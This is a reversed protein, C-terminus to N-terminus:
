VGRSRRRIQLLDIDALMERLLFSLTSSTQCPAKNTDIAAYGYCRTKLRLEERINNLDEATMENFRPHNWIMNLAIIPTIEGELPLTQSLQFLKMLESGPLDMAKHPYPVDPHNEIHSHPPCSIMLAHGSPPHDNDQNSRVLMYQLHDM